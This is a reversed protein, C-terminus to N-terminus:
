DILYKACLVNDFYKLDGDGRERLTGRPTFIVDFISQYRSDVHSMYNINSVTVRYYGDYLEYLVDANFTSADWPLITDSLSISGGLDVESMKCIVINDIVVTISARKAIEVYMQNHTKDCQVERSWCINSGYVEYCQRYDSRPTIHGYQASAVTTIIFTLAILLLRKM